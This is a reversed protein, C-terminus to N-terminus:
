VHMVTQNDPLATGAILARGRLVFRFCVIQGGVLEAHTKTLKMAGSETVVACTRATAAGDISSRKRFTNDLDDALDDGHAGQLM